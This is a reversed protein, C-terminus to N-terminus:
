RSPTDPMAQSSIGSGAVAQGRLEDLPSRAPPDWGLLTRAREGAIRHDRTVGDVDDPDLELAADAAPWPEPPAAFGAGAAAADALERVRVPPGTVGNVLTGAPARELALAYLEALDDVHVLSWHNEGDGVYRPVGNKAMGAFQMLPGGGRGYVMGPRIVVTRIGTAAAALVERELGPRWALLGVPDPVSDEDLRRGPPASGYVWVGSTYVFAKGTGALSALMARVAAQETPGMEEDQTAATHITADCAAAARALTDPDHLDARIAEHGRAALESEAAASRATGAVTHGRGALVGAVAAGLYGTAGTM